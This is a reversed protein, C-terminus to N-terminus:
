LNLGDDLVMFFGVPSPGRVALEVANRHQDANVLALHQGDGHAFLAGTRWHIGKSFRHSRAIFWTPIGPPMTNLEYIVKIERDGPGSRAAWEDQYPPPEWQLREVVLSLDASRTDDIRYSLDYRDMMGLLHDRVGRDLERWLSDLHA